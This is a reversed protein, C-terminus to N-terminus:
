NGTPKEAHDIVLIDVGGKRAELKLGLQNRLAEFITPGSADIAAADIPANERPNGPPPENTFTLTFDHSAKLGTQDIVPRDMVLSLRWVFFDMPVFKANWKNHLGERTQELMLESGNSPEHEKLNKPGNKDLTLVYAPLERTEHHVQLKFREAFLHQMMIHLDGIGSPRSAVGIIDFPDADIWNPGGVVQDPKLWYATWVLPRLPVCSAVYRLGGPSPRLACGTEGPPSPKVSAVEFSLAATTAPPLQAQISPLCGLFLASRTWRM